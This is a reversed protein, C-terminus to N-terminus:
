RSRTSNIWYLCRIKFIDVTLRWESIWTWHAFYEVVLNTLNIAWQFYKVALMPQVSCQVQHHSPSLHASVWSLFNQSFFSTYTYHPINYHAPISILGLVIFTNLCMKEVQITSKLSRLGESVLGDALLTFNIPVLM